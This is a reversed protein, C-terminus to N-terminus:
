RTLWCVRDLVCQKSGRVGGKDKKVPLSSVARGCGQGCGQDQCGVCSHVTKAGVVEAM